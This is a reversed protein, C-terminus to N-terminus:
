QLLKLIDGSKLEGFERYIELQQEPFKTEGKKIKRYAHTRTKFEGESFGYKEIGDKIPFKSKLKIYGLAYLDADRTWEFSKKISNNISNNIVAEQRLTESTIKAKRGIDGTLGNDDKIKQELNKVYDFVTKKKKRGGKSKVKRVTKELETEPKINDFPKKEEPKNEFRSILDQVSIKGM